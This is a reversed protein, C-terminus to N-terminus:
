SVTQQDDKTEIVVEVEEPDGDNEDDEDYDEMAVKAIFVFLIILIILSTILVAAVSLWLPSLVWLWSWSIEGLVKLVVFVSTLLLIENIKGSQKVVKSLSEKTKEAQSKFKEIKKNEM